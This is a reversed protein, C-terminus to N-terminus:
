KLGNRKVKRVAEKSNKVGLKRLMNTVQNKLTSEAKFLKKGIQSQTYGEEILHFVEREAPSLPQLQEERKLRAYDKLLVQVATRQACARRIANPLQRYDSKDIYDIAGATFADLVTKDTKDSTLMIIRSECQREMLEAALEIGSLESGALHIDLLLVDFGQQEVLHLAEESCVAAAALVFDEERNLFSRLAAIWDPDDEVLLVSIPSSSTYNDNKM